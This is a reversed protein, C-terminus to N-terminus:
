HEVLECWLIWDGDDPLPPPRKSQEDSRNEPQRKDRLRIMADDRPPLPSESPSRILSLDSSAIREKMVSSTTEEDVARKGSIRRHPWTSRETQVQIGRLVLEEPSTSNETNRPQVPSRHALDRAAIKAMVFYKKSFIKLLYSCLWFFEFIKFVTVANLLECFKSFSNVPWSASFSILCCENKVRNLLSFVRDNFPHVLCLVVREKNRTTHQTKHQPTTHPTHCASFGTHGSLVDGHTREFRGQTYRCWACVHELIHAHHRCVRLRISRVCLSTHLPCVPLPSPSPPTTTLRTKEYTFCTNKSKRSCILWINPEDRIAM